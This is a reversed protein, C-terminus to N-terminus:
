MDLKNYTDEPNPKQVFIAMILGAFLTFLNISVLVGWVKSMVTNKIKIAAIFEMKKDEDLFDSELFTRKVLEFEKVLEEPNIFSYFAFKWIAIILSSVVGIALCTKLVELYKSFGNFDKDRRGKMGFFLISISVILSVIIDIKPFDGRYNGSIFFVLDIIIISLSYIIGFKLAYQWLSKFNEENTM